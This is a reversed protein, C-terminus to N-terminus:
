WGFITVSGSWLSHWPGAGELHSSAHERYCSILTLHRLFEIGLNKLSKHETPEWLCVGKYWPDNEKPQWFTLSEFVWLMILKLNCFLLDSLCNRIKSRFSTWLLSMCLSLFKMIGGCQKAQFNSDQIRRSHSSSGGVLCSCTNKGLEWVKELWGSRLRRKAALVQVAATPRSRKTELIKKNQVLGQWKQNLTTSGM